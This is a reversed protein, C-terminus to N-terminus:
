ITDWFENPEVVPSMQHECSHASGGGEPQGVRAAYAPVMKFIATTCSAQLAADSPVKALVIMMILVKEEVERSSTGATLTVGRRWGRDFRWSQIIM